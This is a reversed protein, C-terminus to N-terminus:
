ATRALSTTARPWAVPTLTEVAPKALLYGQMLTVGLDRLVDHEALTEVGECVPEVGLDRLMNLTNRVITRKVPDTDINRILAMDLKVIDPQFLALLGLGAYGAGFDDIATKFGMARYSRLINLIHDADMAESETFEFIIRNVPFGTRMAAALTTRICARPEYVANPLFNISLNAGEAAMDIEAALEIATTRCLQDFAYRNAASIQALVQGAGAGDKGRVLAEYAFVTQTSVDVIPQFAMTIPLDFGTGDKCGACSM